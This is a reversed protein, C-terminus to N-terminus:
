RPPRTRLRPEPATPSRSAPRQGRVTGRGCCTRSRRPSSTANHTCCGATAWYGSLWAVDAARRLGPLAARYNAVAEDLRGIQHMIAGRQATARRPRRRHPRGTRKDLANLAAQPRGDRSLVGALTMRAEARRRTGARARDPDGPSPPRPRRRLGAVAHRRARARTRGGGRRRLGARAERVDGGTALPIARRPDSGALRVAELAKESTAVDMAVNPAGSAVFDIPKGTSQTDGSCM